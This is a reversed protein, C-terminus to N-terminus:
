GGAMGIGAMWSGDRTDVTDSYQASREARRQLEDGTTHRCVRTM